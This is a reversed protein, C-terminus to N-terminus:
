TEVLHRVSPRVSMRVCLDSWPYRPGIFITLVAIAQAGGLVKQFRFIRKSEKLGVGLYRCLPSRRWFCTKTFCGNLLLMSCVRDCLHNHYPIDLFLWYRMTTSFSVMAMVNCSFNVKSWNLFSAFSPSAIAIELRFSLPLTIDWPTSLSCLGM